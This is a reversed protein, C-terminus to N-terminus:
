TLLRDIVRDLVPQWRGRDLVPHALSFSLVQNPRLSADDGQPGDVVDFLCGTNPNWFRENFAAYARQAHRTMEAAAPEHGAERLWAEMLRLANYWLANIEVAKGRRPTVVWDGVKADMWTLQYGEEGQTVLGDDPDVGIGFRTGRLHHEVIDILTPMLLKLTAEDGTCQLYRDIAHFYWLTADATHHLADREGEPFLNPLLGDRVHQAYSRLIFGAEAHRGTVLALGELSIMTDRGWDTFWHYGAIVTRVEDGAAQLRAADALRTAPEVIFRDAALVLEAAPGNRAAPHVQEFIREIRLQEARIAEDATIASITEWPETGALLTASQGPDLDTRFYGPSWVNGRSDYGRDHEIRYFLERARGGDLVMASSRAAMRMRLSPVEPYHVELGQSLGTVTFEHEFRGAVSADHPRFHVSPRVRLRVRGPGELLRYRVHVTNQRYPLVVRKELVFLAGGGRVQYEWVPLGDELRFEKLAAAGSVELWGDPREEGGLRHLTGDPLRLEEAVHNLMVMRGLAPLAAILLGHYRRTAVGAISGSAYGGLGNAVLWERSLLLEVNHGTPDWPMCRYAHKAAGALAAPQTQVTLM